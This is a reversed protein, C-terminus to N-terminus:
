EPAVYSLAYISVSGSEENSVVLLPADTPSDEGSVFVLGEPASDDATGVAVDGAFNRPNEYTEFTASTPDTVDFAMIGGVTELGVFAWTREFVSAVVVGEPEPGKNDSRDDLDNNDSDANFVVGPTAAVQQEMEDGSDWVLTGDAQFISISRSGFTYLEEFGETEPDTDGHLVTVELTAIDPLGDPFVTANLTVDEINSDEAEEGEGGLLGDYERADGENATIYYVEGGAEFAAIADPMPLGRVPWTEINVADNQSGDIGHGEVSHDRYGLGFISSVTESAIDIVAVANNEQLTVWATTSDPSVAIYEPELDNTETLDIVDRERPSTIRAYDAFGTASTEDAALLSVDTLPLTVIDSAGIDESNLTVISVSGPPDVQEPDDVYGEPEGENAVLVRTGDPTFTVMDPLAGVEFRAVEEFDGDVDAFFVVSGPNFEDEKPVAVAILGDRVAVSTPGTDDEEENEGEIDITAELVPLTPDEINLVQVADNATVFLLSTTTDFAAIEASDVLARGIRTLQLGTEVDGGTGTGTEMGTSEGSETGGTSEGDTPDGTEVPTGTSGEDGTSGGVTTSPAPDDDECGLALTTLLALCTTSLLHGPFTRRM